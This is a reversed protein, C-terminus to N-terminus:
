RYWTHTNTGIDSADKAVDTGSLGMSLGVDATKLAPADNTGDGTAGVVEGGDPRSSIWQLFVASSVRALCPLDLYSLILCSSSLYYLYYLFYFALCPLALCSVFVHGVFCVLALCPVARRSLVLSYSFFM